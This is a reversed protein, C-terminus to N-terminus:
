GSLEQTLIGLNENGHCCPDTKLKLSATSYHSGQFGRNPPLIKAM